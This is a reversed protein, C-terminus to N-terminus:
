SLENLLSCFSVQLCIVSLKTFMIKLIAVTFATAISIHFIYSVYSFFVAKSLEVVISVTLQITLACVSHQKGDECSQILTVDGQQFCIHTCCRGFECWNFDAHLLPLNPRM